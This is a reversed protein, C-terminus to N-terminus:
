AAEDSYDSDHDFDAHVSAEAMEKLQQTLGYEEKLADVKDLAEVVAMTIFERKSMELLALTKELRNVLTEPMYACINKLKM